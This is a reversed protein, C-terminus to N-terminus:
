FIVSTVTQQSTPQPAASTVLDVHPHPKTLGLKGALEKLRNEETEWQDAIEKVQGLTDKISPIDPWVFEPAKEPPPPLPPYQSVDGDLSVVIERAYNMVPEILAPMWELGTRNISVNSFIQGAELVNYARTIVGYAGKLPDALPDKHFYTPRIKLRIQKVALVTNDMIYNIGQVPRKFGIKLSEVIYEPIEVVDPAYARHGILHVIRKSALVLSLYFFM